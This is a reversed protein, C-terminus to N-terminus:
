AAVFDSNEVKLLGVVIEIGCNIRIYGVFLPFLLIWQSCTFAFFTNIRAISPSMSTRPAADGALQPSASSTSLSMLQNKINQSEDGEDLLWKLTLELHNRISLV